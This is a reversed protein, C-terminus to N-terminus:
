KSRSPDSLSSIHGSDFKRKGYSYETHLSYREATEITGKDLHGAVEHIHAPYGKPYQVGNYEIFIFSEESPM